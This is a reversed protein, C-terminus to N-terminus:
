GTDAAEVEAVARAAAVAAEPRGAEIADVLDRHLRTLSADWALRRARGALDTWLATGAMRELAAHLPSDAAAAVTGHFDLDARTFREPSGSHVALAREELMLHVDLM